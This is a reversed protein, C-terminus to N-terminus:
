RMKNYALYLSCSTVVAFCLVIIWTSVSSWSLLAQQCHYNTAGALVTLIALIAILVRCVNRLYGVIPPPPGEVFLANAYVSYLFGFVGFILAGVVFCWEIIDKGEAM